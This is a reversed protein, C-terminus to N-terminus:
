EGGRKRGGIEGGDYNGGKKEEGDDGELDEPQFSIRLQQEFILQYGLLLV